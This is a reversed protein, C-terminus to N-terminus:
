VPTYVQLAGGVEETVATQVCVATFRAACNNPVNSMMRLKGLLSSKPVASDFTNRADSHSKPHCLDPISLIV